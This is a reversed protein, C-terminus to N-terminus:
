QNLAAKFVVGMAGYIQVNQQVDFVGNKAAVNLAENLVNVAKELESLQKPEEQEQVMEAQKQKTMTIFNLIPKHTNLLPCVEGTGANLCFGM